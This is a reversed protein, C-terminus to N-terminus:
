KETWHSILKLIILDNSTERTDHLTDFWQISWVNYNCYVYRYIVILLVQDLQSLEKLSANHSWHECQLRHSFKPNGAALLRKIKSSVPRRRNSAYNNFCFLETTRYNERNVFRFLSFSVMSLCSNLAASTWFVVLLFYVSRLGNVKVCRIMAAGRYTDQKPRVCFTYPGIHALVSSLCVTYTLNPM